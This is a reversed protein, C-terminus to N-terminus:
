SNHGRFCPASRDSDQSEDGQLIRVAVSNQLAQRAEFLVAVGHVSPVLWTTGAM